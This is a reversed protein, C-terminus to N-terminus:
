PDRGPPDPQDTGPKERGAPVPPRDPAKKELGRGTRPGAKELRERMHRFAAGDKVPRGEGGAGQDRNNWNQRYAAAAAAAPVGKRLDADFARTYVEVAEAARLPDDPVPSDGLMRYVRHITSDPVKDQALGNRLATEFSERWETNKHRGSFTEESAIPQGSLVAAAFFM